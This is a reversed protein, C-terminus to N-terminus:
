KTQENIVETKKLVLYCNKIIKEYDQLTSDENLTNLEAYLMAVIRTSTKIRKDIEAYLMDTDINKIVINRDENTLAKSIEKMREYDLKTKGTIQYYNKVM